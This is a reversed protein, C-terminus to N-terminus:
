YKISPSFMNSIKKYYKIFERKLDSDIELIHYINLYDFLIPIKSISKKNYDLISNCDGLSALQNNLIIKDANSTLYYRVSNNTNM